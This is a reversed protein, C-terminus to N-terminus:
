PRLGQSTSSDGRRALSIFRGAQLGTHNLLLLRTQLRAMRGNGDRFPHVLLSDQPPEGEM